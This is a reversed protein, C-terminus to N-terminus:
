LDSIIEVPPSVPIVSDCYSRVNKMRAIAAEAKAAISADGIVEVKFHYPEGDYDFWEIVTTGEGPGHWTGVCYVIADKIAQKTGYMKSDRNANKILKRTQTAIPYLQLDYEWALENLRWVPMTDVDLLVDVADAIKQNMYNMGAQIAAALAAGNKDALIFRPVFDKAKFEFM